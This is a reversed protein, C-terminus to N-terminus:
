GGPGRESGSPRARATLSGNPTYRGWCGVVAEPTALPAGPLCQRRLRLRAIEEDHM